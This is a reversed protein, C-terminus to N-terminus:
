LLHHKFQITTSKWYEKSVQLMNPKAANGKTAKCGAFSDAANVGYLCMSLCNSDFGKKRGDICATFLKPIPNLNSAKRCVSSSVDQLLERRLKQCSVKCDNANAALAATPLLLALISLLKMPITALHQSISEFSVESIDRTSKFNFICFLGRVLCDLNKEV